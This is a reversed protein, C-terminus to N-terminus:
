PDSAVFHRGPQHFLCSVWSTIQLSYSEATPNQGHTNSGQCWGPPLPKERLFAEVLSFMLFPVPIQFPSLCFSIRHPLACPQLRAVIDEHGAKPQGM